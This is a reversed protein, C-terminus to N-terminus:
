TALSRLYGSFAKPEFVLVAKTGEVWAGTFLHGFRTAPPGLPTFPSVKTEGRPMLQVEDVVVGIAEASSGIFVARQWDERWVPRLRADLAYVPARGQRAGARWAVVHGESGGGRALELNDRQEITYGAGSPLLYDRGAIRLRLYQEVAAM